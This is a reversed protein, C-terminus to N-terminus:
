EVTGRVFQVRGAGGHAVQLAAQGDTLVIGPSTSLIVL